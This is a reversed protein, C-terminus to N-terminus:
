PSRPSPRLAHRHQMWIGALVLALIALSSIMLSGDLFLPLFGDGTALFGRTLLVGCVGLYGATDAVYMLFGLNARHRTIAILREFLTAHVAIYPLYLGVGISVMFAFAGIAKWRWLLSAALVMSLGLCSLALGTLFARRNDAIRSLLGMPILVGLAVWFESRTFVSPDGPDGLAKWLERSFDARVSRLLTVLAYALTILLVIGGHRRLFEWQEHRQLPSRDSRAAVDLGSPPPIRSLMATFGLLPLAFIAGAVAPMWREPVGAELLRLGVTKALGDAVIFSCCLGAIFAESLRRGELFGLVLGFVMGLPLGNLFLCAVALNSPVVGLLIWATEAVAILALLTQIRRRTPMGAIVRIGVMKSVTYGLVQSAILSAKLGPTSPDDIYLAATFPKRFGYMCAYTGFASVICWAALLTPHRQWLPEPDPADSEPLTSNTVTKHQSM